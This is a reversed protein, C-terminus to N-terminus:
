NIVKDDYELYDDRTIDRDYLRYDGYTYGHKDNWKQFVVSRGM